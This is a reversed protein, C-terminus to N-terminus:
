LHTELLEYVCKYFILYYHFNFLYLHGRMFNNSFFLFYAQGIDLLPPSFEATVRPCSLSFVAYCYLLYNLM